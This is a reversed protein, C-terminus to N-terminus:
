ATTEHTQLIAIRDQFTQLVSLSGKFHEVHRCCDLVAALFASVSEPSSEVRGAQDLFDLWEKDTQFMQVLWIGALYEAIPDLVFEIHTEAPPITRVLRLRKELLDFLGPKLGAQAVLVNL